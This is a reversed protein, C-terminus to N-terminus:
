EVGRTGLELTRKVIDAFEGKTRLFTTCLYSVGIKVSALTRTKIKALVLRGCAQIKLRQQCKTPLNSLHMELLNSLDQLQNIDDILMESTPSPPPQTENHNENAQLVVDVYPDIIPPSHPQPSAHNSTPMPSNEKSPANCPSPSKPM